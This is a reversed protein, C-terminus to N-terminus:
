DGGQRAEPAGFRVEGALLAPGPQADLAAIERGVYEAIAAVDGADAEATGFLNRALAERLAAADGTSFAAEYVAARGYFAEAMAKVRRGVSLDGVGMERLSQDMDDILVDFLVQGLATGDKGEGRLRRLVMVTHLLIMEFRGDLTDPVGRDRYFAVGRAQEVLARYIGHAQDGLKARQVLRAFIM